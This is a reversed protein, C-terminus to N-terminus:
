GEIEDGVAEEIDDMEGDPIEPPSPMIAHIPGGGDGEFRPVVHYHVHPVEQGAEPGNNIGLNYAPADVAETVDPAIGHVTEIVADHVEDGLDDLSAEHEKPVVLTHGRSLPNVDLFAIVEDDEYVTRSPIEGDVIKCFICDTM